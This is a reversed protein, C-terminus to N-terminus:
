LFLAYYIKGYFSNLIFKFKFLFVKRNIKDIKRETIKNAPHTGGPGVGV